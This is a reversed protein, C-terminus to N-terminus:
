SNIDKRKLSLGKQEIESRCAESEIRRTGIKEERLMSFLKRKIGVKTAAKSPKFLKGPNSGGEPTPEDNPPLNPSHGPNAQAMNKSHSKVLNNISTNIVVRTM